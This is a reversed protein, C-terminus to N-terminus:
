FRLFSIVYLIFIKLYIFFSYYYNQILFINFGFIFSKNFISIEDIFKNYILKWKNFHRKLENHLFM